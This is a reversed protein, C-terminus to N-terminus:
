ASRSRPLARRVRTAAEEVVVSGGKRDAEVHAAVGVPLTVPRPIHGFPLGLLIPYSTGATVELIVEEISLTPKGAEAVCDTLGGVVMGALNGLHGALRLQTLMRDIRYPPEGIEEWFLIAGDFSAM